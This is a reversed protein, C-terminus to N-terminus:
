NRWSNEPRVLLPGPHVWPRTFPSFSQKYGSKKPQSSFHTPQTSFLLWSIKFLIERRKCSRPHVVEPKIKSRYYVKTKWDRQTYLRKYGRGWSCSDWAYTKTLDVISYNRNPSNTSLNQIPFYWLTMVINFISSAMGLNKLQYVEGILPLTESFRTDLEHRYHWSHFPLSWCYWGRYWYFIWNHMNYHIWVYEAESYTLKGRGVLELMTNNWGWLLHVCPFTKLAVLMRRDVRHRRKIECNSAPDAWDRAM